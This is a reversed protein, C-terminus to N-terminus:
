TDIVKTKVIVLQRLVLVVDFDIQFDWVYSKNQGM